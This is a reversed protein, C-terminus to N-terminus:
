AYMKGVANWNVISMFATIYDARKNQYNLYYAHEWVDIGLIPTGPKEVVYKMLPNDQNPTSSIFLKKDADVSLWAWGSGFRNKAAETFQKNFEEFSGFQAKLAKMLEGDMASGGPAIWKWFQTHNYHGGGNNRVATDGEMVLACIEELTYGSEHFPMGGLAKNLNNVYAAHHKDHHIEMTMVDISPELANTAFGLAPLTFETLPAPSVPVIADMATESAATVQKPKCAMMPSIIVGASIIGAQKLFERKKM